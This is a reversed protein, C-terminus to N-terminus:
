ILRPPRLPPAESLRALLEDDRPSITEIINVRPRAVAAAFPVGQLWGAACSVMLPCNKQCSPLAPMEQPCCSGDDAMAMSTKSAGMPQSATMPQAAATGIASPVIPVLLLGAVALMALTRSLWSWLM